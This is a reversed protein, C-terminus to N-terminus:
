LMDIRYFWDSDTREEEAKYSPFLQRLLRDLDEISRPECEEVYEPHAVFMQGATRWVRALVQKPFARDTCNIINRVVHRDRTNRWISVVYQKKM